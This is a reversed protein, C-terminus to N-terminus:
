LHTGVGPRASHCKKGCRNPINQKGSTVNEEKKSIKLAVRPQPYLENTSCLARPKIGADYAFLFEVTYSFLTLRLRSSFALKHIFELLKKFLM